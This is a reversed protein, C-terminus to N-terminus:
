AVFSITSVRFQLLSIAYDMIHLILLLKFSLFKPQL